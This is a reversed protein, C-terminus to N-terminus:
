CGSDYHWRQQHCMCVYTILRAQYCLCVRMTIASVGHTPPAGLDALPINFCFWLIVFFPWFM